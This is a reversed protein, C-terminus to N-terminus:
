TKYPLLLHFVTFMWAIYEKHLLCVLFYGQLILTFDAPAMNHFVFHVYMIRKKQWTNQLYLFSM